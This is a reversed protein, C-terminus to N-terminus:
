APQRAHGPRAPQERHTGGDRALCPQGAALRGAGAGAMRGPLLRAHAHRGRLRQRAGAAAAHLCHPARGCRHRAQRGCAPRPRSAPLSAPCMSAAASWWAAGAKPWPRASRPPWTPRARWTRPMWAAAARARSACCSASPWCAPLTRRPRPTRTALNTIGTGGNTSTAAAAPRSSAPWCMPRAARARRGAPTRARLRLLGAARGAGAQRCLAPRHLARRQAAAGGRAPGGMRALLRCLARLLPLALRARGRRARGHGCAPLRGAPVRRPTSCPPCCPM